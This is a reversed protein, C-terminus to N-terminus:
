FIFLSMELFEDISFCGCAWTCKAHRLVGFIHHLTPINLNQITFVFKLKFIYANFQIGIPHGLINYKESVGVKGVLTWCCLGMKKMKSHRGLVDYKYIQIVVLKFKM